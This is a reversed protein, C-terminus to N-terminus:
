ELEDIRKKITKIQRKVDSIQTKLMKSANYYREAEEPNEELESCMLFNERAKKALGICDQFQQQLEELEIDELKSLNNAKQNADIFTDEFLNQYVVGANSYLTVDDPNSEILQESLGLAEEIKGNKFLIDFLRSMHGSLKESSENAALGFEFAKRLEVEALENADNSMYIMGKITYFFAHNSNLKLGKDAFEVAKEFNNQDYYLGALVDYNEVRNPQLEICTIFLEIADAYSGNVQANIGENFLKSWISPSYYEVAENITLLETFGTETEVLISKELKQNEGDIADIKLAEQFYFASKIYNKLRSNEAGYVEMALFYAPLADGPYLKLAALASAEAKEYDGDNRLATTATRYETSSTSCSFLLISALLIIKKM